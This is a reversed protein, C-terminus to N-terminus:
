LAIIIGSLVFSNLTTNLMTGTKHSVVYEM